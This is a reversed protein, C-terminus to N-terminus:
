SLFVLNNGLYSNYIRRQASFIWMFTALELLPMSGEVNVNNGGFRFLICMFTALELLPLSEEVNVDNGGFRFLIWMFTALELLPISEEINM